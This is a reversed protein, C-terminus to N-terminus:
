IKENKKLEKLLKLFGKARLMSPYQFVIENKKNLVVTTPYKIQHKYKGLAEALEHIGTKRGTSKYNFVVNQYKIPKKYEADFSIYYFNKNLEKVVDSNKFTTQEMVKCYKCWDTHLFVIVPKKIPLTDVQEFSYTNLQAVTNQFILLFLLLKVIKM